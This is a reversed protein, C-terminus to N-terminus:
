CVAGDYGPFAGRLAPLWGTGLVLLATSLADCELSSPGTVMASQSASTPVGTRPDIVRGCCRGDIGVTKGHVASVSVASDRLEVLRARGGRPAWAIRWAEQDPPRGIAHVSSAGGHVLASTVGRARLVNIAADVAFGNGIAGLDISMGHREFRITSARADLRLFQHGVCTRADAVLASAEFYARMLPGVTIDFAGATADSLRTARRLLAFLAPEVKVARHAAHANIWSVDSGPRFRSLRSDLRAIEALAEEGAGRPGFLVVEFRTAMADLALRVAGDGGTEIEPAFAVTM